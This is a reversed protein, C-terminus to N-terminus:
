DVNAENIEKNLLYLAVLDVLVVSDYSGMAIDFFDDGNM